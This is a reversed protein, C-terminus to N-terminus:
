KIIIIIIIYMIIKVTLQVNYPGPRGSWSILLKDWHKNYTFNLLFIREREGSVCDNAVGKKKM